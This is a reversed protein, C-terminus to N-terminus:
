WGYIEKTYEHLSKTYYSLTRRSIEEGNYIKELFKAPNRWERLERFLIHHTGDYHNLEARIDKGDDYYENHDEEIDFICNLNNSMIKYGQKRGNWFGLDAIAIIRGQLVRNLNSIEDDKYDYNTDEAYQWVEDETIDDPDKEIENIEYFEILSKRWEDMDGLDKNTWIVNHKEM